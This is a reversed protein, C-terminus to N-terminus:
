GLAQGGRVDTEGCSCASGLTERCTAERELAAQARPGM